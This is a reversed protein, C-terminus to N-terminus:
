PICEDAPIADGRFEQQVRVADESIRGATKELLVRFIIGIFIHESITPPATVM